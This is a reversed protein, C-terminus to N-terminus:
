RRRRRRSRRRRAPTGGGLREIGLKLGGNSTRTITLGVLKEAPPAPAPAAAPPPKFGFQAQGGPPRERSTRRISKTGDPRCRALSSPQPQIKQLLRRRRISGARGGDQGQRASFKPPRLSRPLRRQRLVKAAGASSFSALLEAIAAPTLDTIVTSKM